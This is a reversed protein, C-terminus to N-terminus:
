SASLWNAGEMIVRRILIGRLNPDGSPGTKYPSGLSGALPNYYFICIIKKIMAKIITGIINIGLGM